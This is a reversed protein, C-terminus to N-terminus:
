CKNGGGHVTFPLPPVSSSPIPSLQHSGDNFEIDKALLKLDYQFKTYLHLYACMQLSM